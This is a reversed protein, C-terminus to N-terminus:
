LQEKNVTVTGTLNYPSKNAVWKTDFNIEGSVQSGTQAVGFRLNEVFVLGGLTVFLLFVAFLFSKKVM